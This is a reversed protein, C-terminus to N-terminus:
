NGDEARREGYSCFDDEKLEGLEVTKDRNCFREGWSAIRCHKCDKCRVVEVADVTSDGHEWHDCNHVVKGCHRQCEKRKKCNLCSKLWACEKELEQNRVELKDAQQTISAVQEVTYADVADAENIEDAIEDLHFYPYASKQAIREFKAFLENAYILRKENAM